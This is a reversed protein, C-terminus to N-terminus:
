ILHGSAVVFQSSIVVKFQAVNCCNVLTPLRDGTYEIAVHALMRYIALYTSM